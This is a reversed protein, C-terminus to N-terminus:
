HYMNMKLVTKSLNWQHDTGSTTKNVPSLHERNNRGCVFYITTM